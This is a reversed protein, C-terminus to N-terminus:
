KKLIKAGTITGGASLLRGFLDSLRDKQNENMEFENAIAQIIKQTERDFSAKQMSYDITSASNIGGGSQAPNLGILNPNIGAKTADEVARQYATDEREEIHARIEDERKWLRQQDEIAQQRYNIPQIINTDTMDQIENRKKDLENKTVNLANGTSSAQAKQRIIQNRYENNSM